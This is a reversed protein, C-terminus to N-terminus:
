RLVNAKLRLKLQSAQATVRQVSVGVGQGQVLMSAGATTSWLGRKDVFSHVIARPKSM